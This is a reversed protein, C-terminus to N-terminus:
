LRSRRLDRRFTLVEATAPRECADIFEQLQEQTLRIHKGFREHRIRGDRIADAVWREPLSLYEAAEAVDFLHRSREQDAM